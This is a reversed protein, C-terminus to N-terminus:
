QDDIARKAIAALRAKSKEGSFAHVSHCILKGPTKGSENCIFQLLQGLGIFNGLAKNFFDHNRYIVVLDLVDNRQWLLEGFHWCPGGRTRPADITPASLHFVLGTTNRQPWSKLKNIAVDLQDINQPPFRVLREFYTGWRGRNRRWKMAREHRRLYEARLAQRDGFREFLSVPFITDIVDRIDDHSRGYRRPSHLTLWDPDFHTPNEITTLLNCLERHPAEILQTVGNRWADLSTEGQAQLISM